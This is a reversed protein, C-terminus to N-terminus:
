KKAEWLCFAHTALQVQQAEGNEFLEAVSEAMAKADSYNPQDFFGEFRMFTM